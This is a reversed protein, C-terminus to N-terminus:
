DSPSGWRVLGGAARQRGLLLDYFERRAARANTGLMALVNSTPDAGKAEQALREEFARMKVFQILLELEEDPVSVTDSTALTLDHLGLYHVRIRDTTNAPQEGLVLEAPDTADGHRRV